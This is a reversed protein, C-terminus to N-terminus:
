HTGAYYYGYGSGDNNVDQSKNIVFGIAMEPNLQGVAKQIDTLKTKNEEAVVIAQGALNALIATENIGLLPPTDVIVIRDSYRNAMEEVAEYMKESALLETSLHHSKGATIIRLNPINTKCLIESLNTKEGLLFEMLGAKNELELTKMVNPRLVDADVLLVTKDQELAISLALNVATFTKGEGPRSSTVMIINSNSLSKSLPGFANDIIKRKIARYEENILQRSTLTSVFGKAHLKELDIEIYAAENLVREVNESYDTTSSDESLIAEMEPKNSYEINKNSNKNIADEKQRLLAKEISNM